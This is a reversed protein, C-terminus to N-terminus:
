IHHSQPKGPERGPRGPRSSRGARLFLLDCYKPEPGTTPNEPPDDRLLGQGPAPCYPPSPKCGMKKSHIASKYANVWSASAPISTSSTSTSRAASPKNRTVMSLAPPTRM